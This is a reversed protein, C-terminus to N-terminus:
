IIPAEGQILKSEWEFYVLLWHFVNKFYMRLHFIKWTWPVCNHSGLTSADRLFADQRVSSRLTSSLQWSRRRSSNRASNTPPSRLTAVAWPAVNTFVSSLQQRSAECFFFVVGPAFQRNEARSLSFGPEPILSTVEILTSYWILALQAM